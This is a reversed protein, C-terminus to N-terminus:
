SKTWPTVTGEAGGMVQFRAKSAHEMTKPTYIADRFGLYQWPELEEGDSEFAIRGAGYDLTAGGVHYSGLKGPPTTVHVIVGDMVDVVVLQDVLAVPTGLTVNASGPWVPAVVVPTPPATYYQAVLLDWEARTLRAHVIGHVPWDGAVDVIARPESVGADDEWDYIPRTRQLYAMLSENALPTWEGAM